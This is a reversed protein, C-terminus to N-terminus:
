FITNIKKGIAAIEFRENVSDIEGPLINCVASRSANLLGLSLATRLSEEFTLSEHLGYVIGATFADGSGTPDVENIVPIESRYHFDFNSAFVPHNGDTLYAQKVNLSYLENLFSIIKEESDLAIDLSSNLETINNHIITPGKELCAKLHTGYTDLVSIKDLENATDIGFPFIDDTQPCPSSGSFVVVECNSIMKRLKSKFEASEDETIEQNLGFITTVPTGAADIILAADRTESKSQLFTFNIKEDTLLNRVLKGNSGGLLSFAINPINLYSLQRSVNIGKGGASFSTNSSRHSNGPILKNVYYRRELLPNLTVTFIM